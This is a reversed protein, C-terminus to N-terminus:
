VESSIKFLRNNNTSTKEVLNNRETFNILLLPRTLTMSM